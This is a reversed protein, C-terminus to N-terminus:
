KMKFGKVKIIQDLIHLFRKFSQKYTFFYIATSAVANLVDPRM